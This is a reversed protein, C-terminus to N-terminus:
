DEDREMKKGDYPNYPEAFDLFESEVMFLGQQTSYYIELQIPTRLLFNAAENEQMGNEILEDMKNKYAIPHKVPDLYFDLVELSEPKNIKM